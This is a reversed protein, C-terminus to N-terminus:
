RRLFNHEPESNLEMCLVNKTGWVAFDAQHAALQSPRSPVLVRSTFITGRMGM